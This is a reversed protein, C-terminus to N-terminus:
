LIHNNLENILKLLNDKEEVEHLDNAQQIRIYDNDDDDTDVDAISYGNPLAIDNIKNVQEDTIELSSLM